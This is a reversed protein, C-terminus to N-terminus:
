INIQQWIKKTVKANAWLAKVILEMGTRIDTSLGSFHNNFWTNLEDESMNAINNILVEWSAREQKAELIKTKDGIKTFKAM